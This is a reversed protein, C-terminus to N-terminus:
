VPSINNLKFLDNRPLPLTVGKSRLFDLVMKAYKAPIIIEQPMVIVPVLKRLDKIPPQKLEGYQDMVMRAVPRPVVVSGIELLVSLNDNMMDTTQLGYTKSPWKIMGGHSYNIPKKNLLSVSRGFQDTYAPTDMKIKENIKKKM